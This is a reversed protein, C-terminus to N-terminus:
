ASGKFCARYVSQPSLGHAKAAAKVDEYEPSFAVEKGKWKGVKVRIDGYETSVVRVERELTFREWITHRVGFTSTELFLIEAMAERLHPVCLVTVIVAPRNKKMQVPAFFVDLAGGAFLREMLPEYFEPSLDDVNTELVSVTRPTHDGEGEANVKKEQSPSNPSPTHDVPEDKMLAIAHPLLPLLVELGDRVGGTSGPLTIMLTRGAIGAVGRSLVARPLKQYGTWRLLEALGPADREIVKRAAEPTVDRPSFGTGGTTIILDCLPLLASLKASIEDEEDPLLSHEIIEYGNERLTDVAVGGSVDEREGRFCGDSITLVVAKITM